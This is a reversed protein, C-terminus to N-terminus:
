STESGPRLAARRHAFLKGQERLVDPLPVAAEYLRKFELANLVPVTLRAIAYILQQTEGCSAGRAGSNANVSTTRTNGDQNTLNRNVEVSRQEGAIQRDHHGLCRLM